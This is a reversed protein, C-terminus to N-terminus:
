DIAIGWFRSIRIPACVGVDMVYESEVGCATGADSSIPAAHPMGTVVYREVLVEGEEDEFAQYRIRQGAGLRSDIDAEQDIGQLATWQEVLEQLNAAAVVEDDSGHWVSLRPFAAPFKVLTANRVQEAWAAPTRDIGDMCRRADISARWATWWGFPDWWLNKVSACYAPGGAIVAGGGFLGPYAALLSATMWGGASLGAIFIKQDNVAFDARMRDIMNVISAAEGSGRQNDKALFWNWCGYPNNNKSQEPVLLYVGANDAMDLWGARAFTEADQRCGHLLVVLPAPHKVQDPVYRYMTLAAPNHQRPLDNVEVLEAGYVFSGALLLALLVMQGMRYVCISVLEVARIPRTARAIM